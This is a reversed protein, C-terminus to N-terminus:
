FMIAYAPKPAPEEKKMEGIFQAIKFEVRKNEVTSEIGRTHNRLDSIVDEIHFKNPPRVSKSFIGVDVVWFRGEKDVMVNEGHLDTARWGRKYIGVVLEMVQEDVKKKDFNLVSFIKNRRYSSVNEGTVKQMITINGDQSYMYVKPILPLGQLAELVAGDQTEDTMTGKDFKIAIEESLEFVAGCHGAGILELVSEVRRWNIWGAQNPNRQGYYTAISEIAKEMINLPLDNVVTFVQDAITIEKM